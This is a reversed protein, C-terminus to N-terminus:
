IFRRRPFTVAVEALIVVMFIALLITALRTWQFLNCFGGFRAFVQPLVGPAVVSL